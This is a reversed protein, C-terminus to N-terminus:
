IFFIGQLLQDYTFSESSLLLRDRTLRRTKEAQEYLMKRAKKPREHNIGVSKLIDRSEKDTFVTNKAKSINSRQVTFSTPAVLTSDSTSMNNSPGHALDRTYGMMSQSLSTDSHRRMTPNFSSVFQGTHFTPAMTPGNRKHRFNQKTKKNRNRKKHQRGM